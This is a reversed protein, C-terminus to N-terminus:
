GEGKPKPPNLILAKIDEPLNSNKLLAERNKAEEMESYLWLMISFTTIVASTIVGTIVGDKIRSLLPQHIKQIIAEDRVQERYSDMEVATTTNIFETLLNEAQDKYRSISRPSEIHPHFYQDIAERTPYKGNLEKQNEVWSIKDRKYITYAVMGTFDSENDVLKNFTDHNWM